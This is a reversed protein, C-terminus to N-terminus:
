SARPTSSVQMPAGFKVFDKITYGGAAYVMLNTQYGFPSMFAASAAMMLLSSMRGQEIGRKSAIDSAIPYMLAAVANNAVLNSLLMTALYVALMVFFDGGIAEGASVLGDAIAEAMDSNEMAASIGFASAITIIVDWKVSARAAEGSLCQAILMIAAAFLAAVILDVDFDTYVIGVLQTLVMAALAVLSVVVRDFRPFM